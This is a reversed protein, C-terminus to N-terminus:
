EGVARVSVRLFSWFILGLLTLSCGGGDRGILISAEVKKQQLCWWMRLRAGAVVCVDAVLAM